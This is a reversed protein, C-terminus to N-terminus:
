QSMWLLQILYLKPNYFCCHCNKHLVSFKDGECASGTFDWPLQKLAAVITGVKCIVGLSQWALDSSWCRILLWRKSSSQTQTQNSRLCTKHLYVYSCYTRPPSPEWSWFIFVQLVDRREKYHEQGGKHSTRWSELPCLQRLQVSHGATNLRLVKVVTHPRESSATVSNIEFPFGSSLGSGM